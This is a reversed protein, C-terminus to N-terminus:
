QSVFYIYKAEIEVKYEVYYESIVEVSKNYKYFFLVEGFMELINKEQHFVFVWTIAEDPVWKVLDASRSKNGPSIIYNRKNGWISIAQFSWDAQFMTPLYKLLTFRNLM